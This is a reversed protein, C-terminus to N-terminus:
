PCGLCQIGVCHCSAPPHYKGMAQKSISVCRDYAIKLNTAYLKWPATTYFSSDCPMTASCFTNTCAAGWRQTVIAPPYPTKPPYAVLFSSVTYPQAPISSPPPVTGNKKNALDNAAQAALSAQGNDYRAQKMCAGYSITHIDCNSAAYCAMTQASTVGQFIGAYGPMSPNCALVPLTVSVGGVLSVLSCILARKLQKKMM